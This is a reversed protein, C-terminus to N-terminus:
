VVGLRAVARMMPYIGWRFFGNQWDFIVGTDRHVLPCVGAWQPKTLGTRLRVYTEVFGFAGEHFM